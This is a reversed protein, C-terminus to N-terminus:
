QLLDYEENKLDRIMIDTVKIDLENASDLDTVEFNEIKSKFITAMTNVLSGVKLLKYRIKNGKLAAALSEIDLGCVCGNPWADSVGNTYERGHPPADAIHFIYKISDKRFRVSHISDKLGDLVAEATDGGGSANLQAIFSQITVEDTLPQVKTIYSSDEPPHDRYAGFAFKVDKETKTPLAKIKQILSKITEKSKIIYFGMSGTTDCCFVIDILNLPTHTCSFFHEGEHWAGKSCFSKIDSHSEHSCYYNCYSILEKQPDYPPAWGMSNWYKECLWHDFTKDVYPHYKEHSHKVFPNTKAPCKDVGPCEKLHYHARGRRICALNCFEPTCSSGVKYQRIRGENTIKISSANTNSVFVNNEKNRHNNSSHFGEHNPKLDCFSKCEQCRYTCQHRELKCDHNGEHKCHFPKIQMKCESKKEKPQMEAYEFTNFENEFTRLSVTYDVNCIGQKECINRCVHTDGCTHYHLILTEEGPKYELQELKQEQILKEHLHNPFVCQKNCLACKHICEQNTCMHESHDESSDYHCKRLCGEEACVQNCPHKNGCNHKLDSLHNCDLSCSYQCGFEEMSCNEECQHKGEKCRHEENHGFAQGCLNESERCKSTLDCKAKCKHDTDCDCDNSHTNKKSCLRSCSRCKQNCYKAKQIFLEINEKIEKESGRIIEIYAENKPLKSLIYNMVFDKRQELLENEIARCVEIWSNHIRIDYKVYKSLECTILKQLSNLVDNTILEANETQKLENGENQIILNKHSLQVTHTKDQLDFTKTYVAQDKVFNKGGQLFMCKAEHSLSKCIRVVKYYDLETNDDFYIQALVIKLTELFDEGTMWRNKLSSLLIKRLNFIDDAFVALEFYNVGQVKLRGQFLRNLFNNENSTLQSINSDLEQFANQSEKGNVDRILVFLEGKFLNNGRVRDIANSFNQFLRNINRNFSLDQNLILIDSIASLALCLKLEEQENRRISFLGRM